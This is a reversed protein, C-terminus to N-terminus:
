LRSPRQRANALTVNRIPRANTWIAHGLPTCIHISFIARRILFLILFSLSKYFCGNIHTIIGWPCLLSSGCTSAQRSVALGSMRITTNTHRFSLVLSSCPPYSLIHASLIVQKSDQNCHMIGSFLLDPLPWLLWSHTKWPSTSGICSFSVVDIHIVAISHRPTLHGECERPHTM